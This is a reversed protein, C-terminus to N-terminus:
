SVLEWEEGDDSVRTVKRSPGNGTSLFGYKLEGFKFDAGKGDLVLTGNKDVSVFKDRNTVPAISISDGKILVVDNEM